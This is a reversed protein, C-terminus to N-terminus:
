QSPPPAGLRTARGDAGAPGDASGRSSGVTRYLFDLGDMAETLMAAVAPFRTLFTARDPRRGAELIAQYEQLAVVCPDDSVPNEKPSDLALSDADAPM